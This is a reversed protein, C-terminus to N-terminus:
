LPQTLRNRMGPSTPAPLYSHLGKQPCGLRYWRLANFHIDRIAAERVIEDSVLDNAYASLVAACAKICAEDRRWNPHTSQPYFRKALMDADVCLLQGAMGLGAIWCRESYAVGEAKRIFLDLSRVRDMDVIGKFGGKVRMTWYVSLADQLSWYDPARTEFIHRQDLRPVREDDATLYLVRGYAMIAKPSRELAKVFPASEFMDDDHPVIRAYRGTAHRLLVNSNEVFDAEDAAQLIRVSEDAVFELKLREALDDHCHRDSLIVEAGERRAKAINARIVGEWRASRYLPILVSLRTTM